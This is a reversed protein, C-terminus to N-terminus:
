GWMMALITAHKYHKQRIKIALGYSCEFQNDISDRYLEWDWDWGQKGIHKELYPRYHDNPDASDFAIWVAGGLDAWRPHNHDVTIKGNPWKVKITQGSVFKWWINKWIKTGLIESWQTEKIKKILM